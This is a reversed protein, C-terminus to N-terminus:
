ITEFVGKLSPAADGRAGRHSQWGHSKHFPARSRRREPRDAERFADPVVPGYAEEAKLVVRKTDGIKLGLLAQELAPFVQNSGLVFVLPDEGINTDIQTGDELFVTYELSVKKGHQIM